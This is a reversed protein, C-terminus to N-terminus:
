IVPKTQNQNPGNGTKDYLTGVRGLPNGSGSFMPKATPIAESHLTRASICIIKTHRDGHKIKWMRNQRVTNGSTWSFLDVRFCQLLRQSKTAIMDLVQSVTLMDNGRLTVYGGSIQSVTFM